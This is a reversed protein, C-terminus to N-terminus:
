SMSQLISPMPAIDSFDSNTLFAYCFPTFPEETIASSTIPSVSCPFYSEILTTTQNSSPPQYPDPTGMPILPHEKLSTKFKSAIKLMSGVVRPDVTPKEDQPDTYLNIIFPVPQKMPPALM